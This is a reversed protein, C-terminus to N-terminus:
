KVTTNEKDQKIEEWQVPINCGPCYGSHYKAIEEDTGHIAVGKYPCGLKHEARDRWKKIKM